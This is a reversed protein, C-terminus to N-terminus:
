EEAPPTLLGAPLGVRAYLTLLRLCIANIRPAGDVSEALARAKVQDWLAPPIDRIQFKPWDPRGGGSFRRSNNPSM